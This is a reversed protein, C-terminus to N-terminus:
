TMSVIWPVLGFENAVAECEKYWQLYEPFKARQTFTQRWEESTYLRRRHLTALGKKPLPELKGSMKLAIIREQIHQLWREMPTSKAM